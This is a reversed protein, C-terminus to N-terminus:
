PGPPGQHVRSFPGTVAITRPCWRSATPHSTHNRTRPRLLSWSIHVSTTQPNVPWSELIYFSLMVMILISDIRSPRDWDMTWSARNHALSQPIPTNSQFGSQCTDDTHQIRSRCWRCRSNDAWMGWPNEIPMSCGPHLFGYYRVKMFGSPLVHQLFRHMFEMVDLSTTRM